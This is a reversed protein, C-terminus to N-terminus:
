EAGVRPRLRIQEASVHKPSWDVIAHVVGGRRISWVAHVRGTGDDRVSSQDDDSVIQFGNEITSDSLVITQSLCCASSWTEAYDRSGRYYAHWNTGIREMWTVHVMPGCADIAAM